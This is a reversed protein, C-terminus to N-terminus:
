NFYRLSVYRMDYADAFDKLMWEIMLKSRCYTNISNQPHDEAIPIQEPM